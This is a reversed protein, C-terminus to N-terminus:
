WIMPTVGEKEAPSRSFALKAGRHISTTELAMAQRRSRRLTYHESGMWKPSFIGFDRDIIARPANERARDLTLYQARGRYRLLTVAKGGVM